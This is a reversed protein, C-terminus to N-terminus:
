PRALRLDARRAARLQAATIGPVPTPSRQLFAAIDYPWADVTIPGVHFVRSPTPLSRPRADPLNQDAPAIILYSPTHARPRYWVSARQFFMASVTRHSGFLPRVRLRGHSMWDLNEADWYGAYGTGLHESAVLHEIPALQYTAAGEVLIARHHLQSTSLAVLSAAAFIAAARAVAWRTRARAEGALLLPATAAVAFMVIVFYRDSPRYALDTVVYALAALLASTVWFTTHLARTRADLDHTRARWGRVAVLLMAGVAAVTVVAAAITLPAVIASHPGINRGNGFRLLGQALWLAHTPAAPLDLAIPPAAFQIGIAKIVALLVTRAVLAIVVTELASLPIRRSGTGRSVAAASIVYPLVGVLGFLEDSALLVGALLGVVAVSALLVGGRRRRRGMWVLHGALLAAGLPTANHWGVSILCMLVAPSAATLLVVTMAVSARGGVRAVSGAVLGITVVALLPTFLEWLLRHFSLGATAVMFGYQVWSGQTSLQITGFHGHAMATALVYFGSVDADANQWDIIAPYRIVLVVLYALALVIPVASPAIWPALTRGVAPRPRPQPAVSLEPATELASM